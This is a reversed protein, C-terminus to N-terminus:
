QQCGYACRKRLCVHGMATVQRVVRVVRPYRVGNWEIALSCLGLLNMEKCRTKFRAPGFICLLTYAVTEYISSYPADPVFIDIMMYVYILRSRTANWAGGKVYGM